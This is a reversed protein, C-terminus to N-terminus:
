REEPPTQLQEATQVASAIEPIIGKSRYVPRMLARMETLGRAFWAAGLLCFVGGLRLTAPAGFRDAFGGAFLSGFPASGLFALMFFAMVRGRKDDDVLTQVITNSSALQIMFGAGAVLILVCSIWLTRSLSFAILAAGFVATAAPIVGALGRVSKRAALWVAALLAGCGSCTMLIGLTHPGGRLIGGAFIPILVTYPVGVLCVLSLLLLISRIPAFGVAARWGERLSDFVPPHQRREHDQPAIKMMLLAAIVALFSLGDALFCWGEGFAAIVIGGISPGILRAANVMSSNLAIANGLDERRDIMQVLFSQRGPMDFANIFGEVVNLGLLWGITIHGSLTLAALSLSQLMSLAQTWVILRHRNWRDVYIGAFPTLLAAPIQGAFNVLGLLLASGTLRYVLWSTAISTMWTGILSVLQGSFFLRYNRSRLARVVFALNAGKEEQLSRPM